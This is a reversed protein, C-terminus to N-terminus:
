TIYHVLNKTKNVNYKLLFNMCVCVNMYNM